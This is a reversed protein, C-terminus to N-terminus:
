GRIPERLQLGLISSYIQRLIEETRLTVSHLDDVKLGEHLIKSRIGYAEEIFRFKEKDFIHQQILRVIAQRVSERRLKKIRESLSARLSKKEEGVLIPSRELRLALDDLLTAIEDGYDQQITLAELATMLSIFRARETIELRSAAFFEMSTLLDAPVDIRSKYAEEAVAHLEEPKVERYSHGEARVEMGSSRTRDRIAFPYKGTWRDFTLTVRKSAAVWLLSLALQKGAQEAACASSFSELHVSIRKLFNAQERKNSHEKVFRIIHGEAFPFRLESDQMLLGINSGLTLEIKVAYPHTTEPLSEINRPAENM